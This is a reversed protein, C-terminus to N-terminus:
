DGWTQPRVDSGAMARLTRAAAETVAAVFAAVAERGANTLNHVDWAAARERWRFRRAARQWAGPAKARREGGKAAEAVLRHAAEISRAPGLNRYVLFRTFAGAPEDDLRDWPRLPPTGSTATPDTM